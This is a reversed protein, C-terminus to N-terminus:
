ELPLKMLYDDMVYGNGIDAVVSEIKQFGMKEYARISDDNYKNVTLSISIAKLMRARGVIFALAESGLGKWRFEELIYLKSLFLDRDNLRISIYGVNEGNLKIIYYEFCDTFIQHDIAEISQFKDIMYDVQNQGIISVYHQNWITKALNAVVEVEEHASVRNIEISM